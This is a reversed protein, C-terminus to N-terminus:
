NGKFNASITRKFRLPTLRDGQEEDFNEICDKQFLWAGPVIAVFPTM